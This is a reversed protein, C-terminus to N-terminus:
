QQVTKDIANQGGDPLSMFRFDIIESDVSLQDIVGHVLQAVVDAAVAQPM